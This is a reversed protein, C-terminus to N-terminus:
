HRGPRSRVCGMPTMEYNPPCKWQCRGKVCSASAIPDFETCDEGEGSGPCGGCSTLHTSVDICELQKRRGVPCAAHGPPCVPVKNRRSMQRTSTPTCTAQTADPATGIKCAQCQTSGSPSIAGEPCQQCTPSGTPPSTQFTGAPCQECGSRDSTAISGAPCTRSCTGQTADPVTGTQCPQCQTSGPTSIQGEPCRQCTSSGTPSRTEFAGAPCQTCTSQDTSAVSGSPCTECRNTGAKSIM